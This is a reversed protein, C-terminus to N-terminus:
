HTELCKSKLRFVKEASGLYSLNVGLNEKVRSITNGDLDKVIRSISLAFSTYYQTLPLLCM